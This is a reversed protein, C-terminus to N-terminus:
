RVTAVSEVSRGNAFHLTFPIQKGAELGESLGMLMVHLGGPELTISEGQNAVLNDAHRMKAIGDVVITQHIMTRPAVSLTVKELEISDISKNLLSFYLASTKQVPLTKRIWADQVLLSSKASNVDLSEQKDSKGYVDGLSLMGVSVAFIIWKVMTM